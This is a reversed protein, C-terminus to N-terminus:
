KEASSAAKRASEIRAKRKIEKKISSRIDDVWWQKEALSPAVVLFSKNPHHIHFTNKRAKNTAPSEYDEVKMLHLPLEEHVKYDGHASKHAYLLVDSFLFFRYTSSRGALQHRKILDGERVFTRSPDNLLIEGNRIRMAVRKMADVKSDDIFLSTRMQQSLNRVENLENLGVTSFSNMTNNDVLSEQHSEDKSVKLENFRNVRGLLKSFASRELSMDLFSATCISYELLDVCCDLGTLDIYANDITTNIIGHFLHWTSGFMEYTLELLTSEDHVQDHVSVIGDHRVALTRLLEQARKVGRVWLQISTAFDSDDRFPLSPSTRDFGIGKQASRPFNSIEIPNAEISDYITILYDRFKDVSNYVHRLNAIFENRTMKKPARGKQGSASAKHLDTNLMIIAFSVLFVTDQDQFPCKQLDGANDEWYCQSFTSIIRDIKQAEGPLRFGCGTLYHRLGQEVNMGVFSIARTYNFRIHNWYDKDAGDIGGEGLYDGLIEPDISSQHIRLFSSVDRPSSTLLHCAILYDLGKKLGKTSILDFAIDLAEKKHQSMSYKSSDESRSNKINLSQSSDSEFSTRSPHNFIPQLPAKRREISTHWYDIINNDDAIAPSLQPSMGFTIVQDADQESALLKKVPSTPYQKISACRMMSKVILTIVNFSRERLLQATERVHAMHSVDSARPSLGSKRPSTNAGNISTFRSHECIIAGCQEALNCLAEIIKTCLSCYTAPLSGDHGIDFKLYFDIIEKHDLSFWVSMEELVDLQQNLLSPMDDTVTPAEGEGDAPAFAVTRNVQAGMCLSRLVYHEMLVALDIDMRARFYPNSWFQSIIRLVRRFVRCDELASSTNSLLTPIILRRMVYVMTAASNREDGVPCLVSGSSANDDSDQTINKGHISNQWTKIFFLLLELSLLKSAVDRPVPESNNSIVRVKGSSIKVFSTLIAFAIINAHALGRSSLTDHGFLGTGCSNIMDHWFLESGGSRHIQYLALQTLNAVDVKNMANEVIETVIHRAVTRLNSTEEVTSSSPSNMGAGLRGIMMSVLEKLAIAAAQPAGGPLYVGILSSKERVISDFDDSLLVDDVIGSNSHNWETNFPWGSSPISAGFYFVFLYFRLVFGITRNNLKGRAYRVADSVFDVCSRFYTERASSTAVDCVVQIALDLLTLRVSSEVVDDCFTGDEDYPVVDPEFFLTDKLLSTLGEVALLASGGQSTYCATLIPTIVTVRSQLFSSDGFRASSRACEISPIFHMADFCAQLTDDSHSFLSHYRPTTRKLLSLTPSSKSTASTCYSSLSEHSPSRTVTSEIPTEFSSASASDYKIDQDAFQHSSSVSLDDECHNGLSEFLVGRENKSDRRQGQSQSHASSHSSASSGWKPVANGSEKRSLQILTLRSQASSSSLLSHTSRDMIHLHGVDSFVVTGGTCYYAKLERRGGDTSRSHLVALVLPLPRLCELNELRQRYALFTPHDSTKASMDAVFNRPTRELVTYGEPILDGKTPKLCLIGTIPNGERSRRYCLYVREGSSSPNINAPSSSSSGSEANDVDKGRTQQSYGHTRYHRVVSFGPPVFENRDPYIVCIATVCPRQVARDWNVEKKANLYLRKSRKRTSTMNKEPSELPFARYYGRPPPDSGSTVVIDTIAASAVASSCEDLTPIGGSATNSDNDNRSLRAKLKSSVMMNGMNSPRRSRHNVATSHKSSSLIRAYESAFMQMRPKEHSTTESAKNPFSKQHTVSSQEAGAQESQRLSANTYQENFQSYDGINEDYCFSIRSHGIEDQESDNEDGDNETFHGLGDLQLQTLDIASGGNHRRPTPGDSEGRASLAMGSGVSEETRRCLRALSVTGTLVAGPAECELDAADGDYSLSSAGEREGGRKSGPPRPPLKTPKKFPLSSSAPGMSSNCSHESATSSLTDNGEPNVSPDNGNTQHPHNNGTGNDSLLSRIASLDNLPADGCTIQHYISRVVNNAEKLGNRATTM